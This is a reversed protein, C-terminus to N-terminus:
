EARQASNYVMRHKNPKESKIQLASSRQQQKAVRRVGGNMPTVQQWDATGSLSRRILDM